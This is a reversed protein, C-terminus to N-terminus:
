AGKVLDVKGGKGPEVRLPGKHPARAAPELRARLDEPGLAALPSIELPGEVPLGAERAWRRHEEIYLARASELSDVGSKNKIPAFEEERVVELALPNRAAPLADFVFTEYKVGEVQTPSGDEALTPIKKKALHYPLRVAGRAVREFFELRFAHIAISGAWHVLQGSADRAESEAKSFDSYEIVKTEGGEIAVVGIKEEPGTKALVKLSMDSKLLSHLGLFLPDALRILINDVQFYFLHEVGRKRAEEIAGGGLIAAYSGGHGNPSQFLKGRTELILKGAVDLAPLMKQPLFKVSSAELGFYSHAEFFRRTDADNAQSTMIFWPISKGAERGLALVKEAHLQFITKGSLPGVPLCGKPGEFGLRSGQGGAVLFLGVKGERLLRKGEAVGQARTAGRPEDRLRVVPAPSRPGGHVATGGSSALESIQQLDVQRLETEFTAREAPTLDKWFRFVHDQGAARYTQLLDTPPVDGPIGTKPQSPKLTKESAPM